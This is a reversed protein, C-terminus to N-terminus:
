SIPCLVPSQSTPLLLAVLFRGHAAAGSSINPAGLGDAIYTKLNLNRAEPPGTNASETLLCRGSNFCRRCVTPRIKSVKASMPWGQGGDVLNRWRQSFKSRGQGFGASLHGFTSWSQDVRPRIEEVVKPCNHPLQPARRSRQPNNQPVRPSCTNLCKRTACNEKGYKAEGPVGSDCGDGRTTSPAPPARRTHACMHAALAPRPTSCCCACKPALCPPPRSRPSRSLPRRRRLRTPSSPSGGNRTLPRQTRPTPKPRQLSDLMPDPFAAGFCLADDVIHRQQANHQDPPVVAALLLRQQSASALVESNVLQGVIRSAQPQLRCELLRRPRSSRRARM